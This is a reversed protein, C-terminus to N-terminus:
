ALEPRVDLPMEGATEVLAVADVAARELPEGALPAPEHEGDIAADGGDLLHPACALEPEVHDDGVMVTGAVLQRVARDNRCLLEAAGADDELEPLCQEARLGFDQPPM